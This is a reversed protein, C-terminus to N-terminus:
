PLERLRLSVARQHGILGESQALREVVPGITRLGEPSLEQFSISKMFSDLGLGSYARAFGFTPLVHNTGSAYDGVAEPTIAGIFVSGANRVQDAWKRADRLQLILHEPAYANAIALAQEVEDALILRSHRLAQSAIERRPLEALQVELQHLTQELVTQSTTVLLVQSSGDHEAQSLLDAAVFEPRATEDAVVLVESPGAPLDIAAGQPDAAVQLKAETVWANGPGFIKDVRGISETGYALAAVAQAGGCKYVEHVGLLRAAALIVPAIRGDAGPPTVVAISACGAVLAPVALMLLTSPLPATGGPVYLGVRSLPFYRKECVVGPATEVRLAHPRQAEHFIRIRGIAWSLAAELEPDIQASAWEAATVQLDALQARDWRATMALVASDGGQRVERLIERVKHTLEPNRSAAPRALCRQQAEASLQRWILIELPTM